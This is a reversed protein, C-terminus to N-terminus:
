SKRCNWYLIIYYMTCFHNVYMHGTGFFQVTITQGNMNLIRAPWPAYDPITALIIEDVLYQRCPSENEIQEQLQLKTSKRNGKRNESEIQCKRGYTLPTDAPKEVEAIRKANQRSYEKEKSKTKATDDM